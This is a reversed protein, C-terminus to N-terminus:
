RKRGKVDDRVEDRDEALQIVEDDHWDQDDQCQLHNWFGNDLIAPGLGAACLGIIGSTGKSLDSGMPSRVSDSILALLCFEVESM